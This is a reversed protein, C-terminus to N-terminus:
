AANKAPKAKPEHWVEGRDLCAMYAEIDQVKWVRVRESIYVPKPFKGAAMMRGLQVNGSVLNLRYLDSSRYYRARLKSM